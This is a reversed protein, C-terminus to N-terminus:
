PSARPAFFEARSKGPLCCLFRLEQGAAEGHPHLLRLDDAGWVRGGRCVWRERWRHDPWTECWAERRIHFRRACPVVPLPIPGCRRSPSRVRRGEWGALNTACSATRPSAISVAHFCVDPNHWFTRHEIGLSLRDLVGERPEAVGGHTVDALAFEEDQIEIAPAAVFRLFLELVNGLFHEGVRDDFFVAKLDYVSNEFVPPM